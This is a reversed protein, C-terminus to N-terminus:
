RSACRTRKRTRAGPSRPQAAMVPFASMGTPSAADIGGRLPAPGVPEAVASAVRTATSTIKPRDDREPLSVLNRIEALQGLWSDVEAEWYGVSQGTEPWTDDTDRDRDRREIVLCALVFVVLAGGAFLCYATATM